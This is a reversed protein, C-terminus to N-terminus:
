AVGGAPAPPYLRLPLRGMRITYVVQLLPVGWWPFGALLSFPAPGPSPVVLAWLAATAVGFPIWCAIAASMRLSRLADTRFLDDWALELADTAPQPRARVLREFVRTTVTAAVALALTAGAAALLAAPAGRLAALALGGTALSAAALLVVPPWRLWPGLYADIRPPSLRAIRPADPAPSFLRERVQATVTGVSLCALLIVVALIWMAFPSEALPTTVFMVAILAVACLLAWMNTRLISRARGRVRLRTAETGFPLRAQMSMTHARADGWEPRRSALLWGIAVAAFAGLLVLNFVTMSMEFSFEM